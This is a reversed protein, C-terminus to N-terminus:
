VWSHPLITWHDFLVRFESLDPTLNCKHWKSATSIQALGKAEKGGERGEKCM